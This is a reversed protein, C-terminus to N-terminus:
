TPKFKPLILEHKMSIHQKIYIHYIHKLILIMILIVSKDM